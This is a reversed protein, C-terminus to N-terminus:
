EETDEYELLIRRAWHRINENNDTRFVVTGNYGISQALIEASDDQCEEITDEIEDWHLEESKRLGFQFDISYRDDGWHEANSRSGEVLLQVNEEIEETLKFDEAKESDLLNSFRNRLTSKLKNDM